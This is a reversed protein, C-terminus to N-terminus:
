KKLVRGTLLSFLVRFVWMIVAFKSPNVREPLPVIIPPVRAEPTVEPTTEPMAPPVVVQDPALVETPPKPAETVPEQWAELDASSKPLSVGWLREVVPRFADYRHRYIAIDPGFTLQKIVGTCWGASWKPSKLTSVALKLQKNAITPNNIAFSLYAARLAGCWSEDPNGDFLTAKADSLVFWLLRPKTYADQARRAGENDWVNVLCSAWLKAHATSEPTWSGQLGSCSLFLARTKELSDVEGRDDNFFFRWKGHANKKFSADSADLAPKLPVMVSAHGCKEIVNGLMASVSYQGAEIWQILGLSSIGRDYMNLSDYHGGECATIVALRRDDEDADVPLAYGHRGHFFPGCYGAYASWGVQEPTIAM